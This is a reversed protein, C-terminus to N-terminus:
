SCFGAELALDTVDLVGSQGPPYAWHRGGLMLYLADGPRVPGFSFGTVRGPSARIMEVRDVLYPPRLLAREATLPSPRPIALVSLTPVDTVGLSSCGVPVATVQTVDSGPATELAMDIDAGCLSSYPVSTVSQGHHVELTGEWFAPPGALIVENEAPGFRWIRLADSQGPTGHWAVVSGGSANGALRVTADSCHVNRFGVSFTGARDSRFAATLDGGVRRVRVQDHELWIGGEPKWRLIDVVDGPLIPANTRPSKLAPSIVSTVELSDEFLFQPAGPIAVSILAGTTLTAPIEPGEIPSVGADMGGPFQTLSGPSPPHWAARIEYIGEGAAQTSGQAGDDEQILSHAPIRVRLVERGLARATAVTEELVSDGRIEFEGLATAAESLGGERVLVLRFEHRGDRRMELRTSNTLYGAARAIVRLEVPRDPRPRVSNAIAYSAFGQSDVWGEVRRGLLDRVLHGVEGAFSVQVPSTIPDGTGADLVTGAVVTRFSDVAMLPTVNGVDDLPGSFECATLILACGLAMWRAIPRM